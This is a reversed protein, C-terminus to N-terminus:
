LLFRANEPFLEPPKSIADQVFDKLQGDSARLPTVMCQYGKKQQKTNEEDQTGM